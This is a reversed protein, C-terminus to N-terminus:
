STCYPRWGIFKSSIPKILPYLFLKM